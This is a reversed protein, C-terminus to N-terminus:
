PEEWDAGCATCRWLLGDDSFAIALCGSPCGGRRYRLPRTIERHGACECTAPHDDLISQDLVDGM